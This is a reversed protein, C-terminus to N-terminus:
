RANVIDLKITSESTICVWYYECFSVQRANASTDLPNPWTNPRAGMWDLFKPFMQFELIHETSYISTDPPQGKQVFNMNTGIENNSAM